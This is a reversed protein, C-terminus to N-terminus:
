LRSAAGQDLVITVDPHLQLVSAPVDDTIPGAIAREVPVAKEEGSALLIIRKARMITKIGVTIAMTPVNDIGGFRHAERERTTRSLQVLGVTMGWDTGPENFGIHGNTGIGLVQLDMEGYRNLEEEYRKCAIMGDRAEGDPIHTNEDAMNVRDFLKECMYRYYSRPHDPSLGHYEDLNFTIVRSFDLLGQDYMAVLMDYMATPTDGTPLGIVSNPKALLQRAVIRAAERSMGSYDGRVIVRM